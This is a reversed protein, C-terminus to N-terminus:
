KNSLIELPLERYTPVMTETQDFRDVEFPKAISNGVLDEIRENIRLRYEGAKWPLDPKFSWQTEHESLTTEGDVETGDTGIVTLGRTVIAHDLSESLDIQLVNTTDPRPAIIKWFAPNPQEYDAAITTFSKTFADKLPTGTADLWDAKIVLQYKRDAFLIAGDEEHPILERKVRAPDLLLTLRTGTSDWLEEAIELFPRELHRGDQDVLDIHEYVNGFSMPASFHIYFKLLNEPLRDATPYVARVVTTPIQEPQPRYLAFTQKQDALQLVIRYHVGEQLPYKPAFFLTRGQKELMAHGFVTPLDTESESTEEPLAYVELARDLANTDDDLELILNWQADTFQHVQISLDDCDCPLLLEAAM